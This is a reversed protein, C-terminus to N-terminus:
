KVQLNKIKNVKPLLEGGQKKLMFQQSKPANPGIAKVWDPKGGKLLSKSAVNFEVYISGPNAQRFFSMSGSTSGFTMGGAGEQIRKSEKMLAYEKTSMWRGVRTVSGRTALYSGYAVKAGYGIPVFSAVTGYMEARNYLDAQTLEGALLAETDNKGMYMNSIMATLGQEGSGNLAAVSSNDIAEKEAEIM